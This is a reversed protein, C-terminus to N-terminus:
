LYLNAAMHTFSKRKPLKETLVKKGGKNDFVQWRSWRDCCCNVVQRFISIFLRPQLKKNRTAKSLKTVGHKIQSCSCCQDLDSKISLTKLLIHKAASPRSQSNVANGKCQADGNEVNQNWAWRV